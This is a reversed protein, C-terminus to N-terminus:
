EGVVDELTTGHEKCVDSLADEYLDFLHKGDLFEEWLKKIVVKLEENM